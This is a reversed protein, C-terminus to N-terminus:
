LEVAQHTDCSQRAALGLEVSARGDAWSSRPAQGTRCCRFFDRLIRSDAGGHGGRILERLDHTVTGPEHRTWVTVTGAKMDAEAAGDTGMLRLQRTNRASVVNVTYTARVDTEYDVVAIGNDFTDKDANWLCLDRPVGTAAETLKRLDDTVTGAMVRVDYVDPCTAALPCDSCRDAADARPRYYSLSSAAFVRKARGGALWNLLDFDHCAKTIWLGGGYKRLRNWRRFYTKGGSYYENAEITLLRGLQGGALIEHMREHVPSHRLNMGLYFVGAADRAADAIRDCDEVTIAMPKECYVHKGAQLAAVAGEAHADDRSAVFVADARPDSVAQEVSKYVVADKAGFEDLIRRCRQPIPDYLGTVFGEHAAGDLYHFMMRSRGSAGLIAVGIPQTM